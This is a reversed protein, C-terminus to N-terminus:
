RPASGNTPAAPLARFVFAPETGLPVAFARIDRLSEAEAPAPGPAPVATAPPAPAEQALAVPALAAAVLFARRTPRPSSRM